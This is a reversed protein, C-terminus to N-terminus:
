IAPLGLCFDVFGFVKPSDSFGLASWTGIVAVEDPVDVGFDRPTEGAGVCLLNGGDAAPESIDSALDLVDDGFGFALTVTAPPVGM